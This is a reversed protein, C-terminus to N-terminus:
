RWVIALPGHKAYCGGSKLPCASPCTTDITTSVPIPGTKKNGSALTFIFKLM